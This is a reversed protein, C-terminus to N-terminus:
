TTVSTEAAGASTVPEASSRVRSTRAQTEELPGMTVEVAAACTAAPSVLTTAATWTRSGLRRGSPGAPPEPAPGPGSEPWSEPGPAPEEGPAPGPDPGGPEPDPAPVPAPDPDPETREGLGGGGNASSPPNSLGALGTRARTTAASSDRASDIADAIVTGSCRGTKM